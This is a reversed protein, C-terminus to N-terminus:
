AGQEKVANCVLFRNDAPWDAVAELRYLTVGDRLRQGPKPRSSAGVPSRRTYIRVPQRSIDQRLRGPQAVVQAWITGMPTWNESFGGAGDPSRMPDELTMPRNPHISASM